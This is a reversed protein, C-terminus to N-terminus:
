SEAEVKPKLRGTVTITDGSQMEVVVAEDSVTVTNVSESPGWEFTRTATLATM